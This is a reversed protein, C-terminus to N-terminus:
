IPYDGTFCADCFGERNTAKKMSELSIFSLSTAGIHQRIEEISKSSAILKSKDPTDVGYICSNKVPPATIRFHIDKAGAERLMKVLKKTTTGRVISDDIVVLNKNKVVDTLVNLKVHLDSERLSQIPQIFTRGVYRNKIFGEAYELGRAKAYGIAAPMGSDPVGIVLDITSIATTDEAGLFMGLRKRTSYITAGKDVRSDPRSFYVDEFICTRHQQQKFLKYSRLGSATITVLEGPKVDRLYTAGVIDLACTESAIVYTEYVDRDKIEKMPSGITGIVLPRFGYPDRAAMLLNKSAMVISYAGEVKTIAKKLGEEYGFERGKQAILKGLLWSDSAHEDDFWWRLPEINILNGNHAMAMDGCDLIGKEITPQLYRDSGTTSYRTHGIGVNGKLEKLNSPNFVTNVLGKQRYNHISGNYNATAIGAAEQGRHQLAQLGLYIVEPLNIDCPWLRTYVGFVGCM